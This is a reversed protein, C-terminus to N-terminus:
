SFHQIITSAKSAVIDTSSLRLILNLNPRAKKSFMLSGVCIEDMTKGWGHCCGSKIKQKNGELKLLMALVPDNWCIWGEM